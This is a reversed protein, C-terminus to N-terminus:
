ASLALRTEPKSATLENLENFIVQPKILDKLGWIPLKTLARSEKVMLPSATFMGSLAFPQIGLNDLHDLAGKACISDTVSLLIGSIYSM